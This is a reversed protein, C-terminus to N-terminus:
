CKECSRLPRFGLVAANISALFLSDARTHWTGQIDIQSTEIPDVKDPDVDEFDEWFNGTFETHTSLTLRAMTLFTVKVSHEGAPDSQTGGWSRYLDTNEARTATPM